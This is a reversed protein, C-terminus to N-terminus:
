PNPPLSPPAARSKKILHFIYLIILAGFLSMFFGASEDPGYHGIAQGLYTGLFAGGIGLLTTLIFGLFVGLNDKGPMLLRAFVGVVFGIIITKIISM